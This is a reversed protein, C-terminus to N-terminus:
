INIFQNQKRQATNTSDLATTDAPKALMARKADHVNFKTFINSKLMKPVPPKLSPLYSRLKRLTLVVQTPAGCDKLQKVFQDTVPGRYQLLLKHTQSVDSDDKEEAVEDIPRVLKSITEEIIPDYFPPPYQNKELVSKARQLSKDFNKWTSCAQYIRHVFGSVM